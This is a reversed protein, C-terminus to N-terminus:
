KQSSSRLLNYTKITEITANTDVLSTKINMNLDTYQQNQSQSNNTELFQINEYKNLLNKVMSKVYNEPTGGKILLGCWEKDLCKMKLDKSNEIKAAHPELIAALYNTLTTGSKLFKLPIQQPPGFKGSVFITPRKKV